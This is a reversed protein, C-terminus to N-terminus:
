MVERPAGVGGTEECVVAVTGDGERWHKPILKIQVDENHRVNLVTLLRHPRLCMISVDHARSREACLRM